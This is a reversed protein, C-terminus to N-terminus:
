RSLRLDARKGKNSYEKELDKIKELIRPDNLHKGKGYYDFQIGTQYRPGVESSFFIWRVRGRITIPVEEGPFFVKMALRTNKKFPRKSFFSLGGKSLDALPYIEESYERDSFVLKETKYILTAGPIKFRNCRRREIM